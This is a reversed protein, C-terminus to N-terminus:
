VFVRLKSAGIHKLSGPALTYGLSVNRIRMFDHNKIWFSSARYNNNNAQTTLRPYTASARTDIGQDPYYAWAGKAIAYPCQWQERFGTGARWQCQPYEHYLGYRGSSYRLM